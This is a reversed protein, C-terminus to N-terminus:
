IAKVVAVLEPQNSLLRLLKLFPGTPTTAGREYRSVALTGVGMMEALERQTVNLKQRLRHVEGEKQQKLWNAQIGTLRLYSASEFIAEDCNSCVHAKLGHVTLANEGAGITEDVIRFVMEGFGCSTCEM